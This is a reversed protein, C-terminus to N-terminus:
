DYCMGLFGEYAMQNMATTHTIGGYKIEKKECCKNLYTTRLRKGKLFANVKALASPHNLYDHLAQPECSLLKALANILNISSM